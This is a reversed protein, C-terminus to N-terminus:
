WTATYAVDLQKEEKAKKEMEKRVRRAEKKEMTQIIAEMAVAM